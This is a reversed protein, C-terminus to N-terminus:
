AKKTRTIITVQDTTNPHTFLNLSCYLFRKIMKVKRLASFYNQNYFLYMSHAFVHKKLYPKTYILAQAVSRTQSLNNQAKRILSQM